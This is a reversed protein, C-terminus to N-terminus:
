NEIQWVEHINPGLSFRLLKCVDAMNSLSSARVVADTDQAAQLFAGLLINGYRPVMEGVYSLYIIHLNRIIFSIVTNTKILNGFSIYM